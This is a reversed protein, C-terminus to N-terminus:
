VGVLETEEVKKGKRKLQKFAAVLQDVTFNDGIEKALYAENDPSFTRRKGDFQIGYLWNNELGFEVMDSLLDNVSRGVELAREELPPLFSPDIRNPFVVGNEFGSSKQVAAVVDNGNRIPKQYSAEIQTVQDPTLAMGGDALNELYASARASLADAASIDTVSATLRDLTEQRLSLSIPLLVRQKVAM